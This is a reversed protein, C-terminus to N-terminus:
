PECTQGNVPEPDVADLDYQVRFRYTLLLVLGALLFAVSIFAFCSNLGFQSKVVGTVLVATGGAVSACTNMIGIATSRLRSPVIDCLVPNDNAQGAGRLLAFTFIGIMALNFDPRFLFVLLFPGALSFSIAQLLMRNRKSRQALRDSLYGSCTLGIVTAAQLPFTGAFGAVGLSFHYTDRLYLPLWNFFTWIGTAVLMVEALVAWYSRISLLSVISPSAPASKSDRPGGCSYERLVRSSVVALLLGAIGLVIFGARWGFRDALWGALTSGAVVGLNLGVSHMAMATGRTGTGHSSALLATASPLYFSECFGLLVRACLLLPYSTTFGSAAAAISWSLVSWVILRSRSMRDAAYGALPSFIAYSWLFATGLGALQVDSLHMEDRIAPLVVALASRDTYNL